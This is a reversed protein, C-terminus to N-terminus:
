EVNVGGMLQDARSAFHGDVKFDKGHFNPQQPASPAQQQQQQEQAGRQKQWTAQYWQVYAPTQERVVPQGLMFLMRNKQKSDLKVGGGVVRELVADAWRKHVMPTLERVVALDEASGVGTSLRELAAAPNQVAVMFRENRSRTVRDQPMPQRGLPDSPDTQPGMKQVVFSAKRMVAQKLADAMEPSEGAVQLVMAELQHSEPSEPDQLAQSQAVMREISAAPIAARATLKAAIPIVRAPDALSRLTSEVAGEIAKEQKVAGRGLRFLTAAITSEARDRIMRSGVAALAGAPGMSAAGAVGALVDNMGLRNNRAARLAERDALQNAIALHSYERKEAKLRQLFDGVGRAKAAEDSAQEFSDEIVRRVDRLAETGPDIPGPGAQLWKLDPRKDITKRIEHLEKLGIQREIQAGGKRVVPSANLVDEIGSSKLKGRIAAAIDASGAKELPKVVEDEIRSWVAARSTTADGVEDLLAGLRQGSDDLAPAIRDAVAEATDGARVVGRRLLTEGVAAEGGARGAANLARNDARGLARFAAKGAQDDLTGLREGAAKAAASVGKGALNAGEALAGLGGGLLAGMRAGDWAADLMREATIEVNGAAMDDMVRRTTADVAAEAAGTAALAGIRGIGTAARASLVTGMKTALNALQGAPTLRALAGVSGVGGSLAAPAIAGAVGAVTATMPNAEARAQMRRGYGEDALEGIAGYAGLTAGQAFQEGATIAQADLTSNADLDRQASVDEAGALQYGYALLSEVHERDANVASGDPARLNVVDGLPMGADTQPAGLIPVMPSPAKAPLPGPPAGPDDGALQYGDALLSEVHEPDSNVPSGDPAILNVAM